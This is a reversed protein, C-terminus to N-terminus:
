NLPAIALGWPSNLEGRSAVRVLLNGATDFANVYGHGEGPVDDHAAGDQLAYTVYIVGNINQIGFPAYGAPITPDRFGTSAVPAFSADFVDVTGAHFNTAYLFGGAGTYAIALGKYVAGRMSNNVVGFAQTGGPWASLTGDESAFIFRSAGHSPIVFGTGSNFVIGTPSGPVSVVLAVKAGTTGNYLTSNGSGNDAIWWPSTASATLGWANVLDPDVLDAAIAGDSVLNHQTYVQASAPRAAGVALAAVSVSVLLNRPRMRVGKQIFSSRALRRRLVIALTEKLLRRVHQH